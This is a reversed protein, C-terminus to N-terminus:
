FHPPGSGFDTARLTTGRSYDGTLFSSDDNFILPALDSIQQAFLLEGISSQPVGAELAQTLECCLPRLEDGHRPPPCRRLLTAHVAETLEIPWSGTM